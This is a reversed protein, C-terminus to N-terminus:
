VTSRIDNAFAQEAERAALFAAAKALGEYFSTNVRLWDRAAENMRYRCSGKERKSGYKKREGLGRAALKTLTYSHHSGNSAGLDMPMLWESQGHKQRQIDACALEKLTEIDRETLPKM